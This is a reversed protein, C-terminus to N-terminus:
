RWITELNWSDCVHQTLWRGNNRGIINIQGATQHAKLAEETMEPFLMAAEKPVRAAASYVIYDVSKAEILQTDGKWDVV